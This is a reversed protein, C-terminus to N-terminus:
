TYSQMTTPAGGASPTPRVSVVGGSGTWFSGFLTSTGAAKVTATGGFVTGDSRAAMGNLSLDSANPAVLSRQHVRDTMVLM